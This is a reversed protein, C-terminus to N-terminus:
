TGYRVTTGKTTISIGTKRYVNRNKITSTSMVNEEALGVLEALDSVLQGRQCDTLDAPSPLFPRDRLSVCATLHAPSPKVNSLGM